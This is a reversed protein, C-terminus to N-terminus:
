APSPGRGADLVRGAESAVRVLFEREDEDFARPEAFGVVLAAEASVPLVALAEDGVVPTRTFIPFRADREEITRFFSPRGTRITESAPLDDYLSFTSWGTLVDDPYQDAWRIEVTGADLDAVCLSTSSAAMTDSLLDALQGGLEGDPDLAVPHSRLPSSSAREAAVERSARDAAAIVNPDDLAIAPFPCAQALRGDVQGSIEDVYWQRFAVIEPAPELTLLEGRRCHDAIQDIVGLFDRLATVTRDDAAVAVDILRHGHAIADRAAVRLPERANATMSRLRNALGGLEEEHTGGVQFERILDDLNAASALVLRGPVARLRVNGQAGAPAGRVEAEVSADANADADVYPGESPETGVDAWVTKTADGVDVGWEDSVSGVVVLGRGTMTEADLLDDLTPDSVDLAIVDALGTGSIVPVRDPLADIVEIRVGAARRRVRIRMPAAAHLVANTVLESTVLCCDDVIEPAIKGVADRVRHRAAEVAHADDPLPSDALVEDDTM